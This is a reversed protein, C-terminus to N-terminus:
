HPRCESGVKVLNNEKEIHTIECLENFCWHRRWANAFNDLQDISSCVFLLGLSEIGTTYKKFKSHESSGKHAEQVQNQIDKHEDHILISLRRIQNNGFRQNFSWRKIYQIGYSRIETTFLVWSTDFVM